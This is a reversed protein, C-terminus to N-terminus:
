PADNPRDWGRSEIFRRTYFATGGSAAGVVASVGIYVVLAGLSGFDAMRVFFHASVVGVFAGAFFTQRGGRSYVAGTGLVVPVLILLLMAAITLVVDVGGALHAVAAVVAFATTAILM